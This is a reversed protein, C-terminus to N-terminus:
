EDRDISITFQLNLAFLIAYVGISLLKGEYYACVGLYIFMISAILDIITYIM